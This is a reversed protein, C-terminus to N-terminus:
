IPYSIRINMENTYAEGTNISLRYKLYVSNIHNNCVNIDINLALISLEFVGYETRYTNKTECGVRFAMRSSLGGSRMLVAEGKGLKLITTTGALGSIESEEYSIYKSDKKEYYRGETYFEMSDVTGESDSQSSAIHVKIPTGNNM